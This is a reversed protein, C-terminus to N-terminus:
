GDARTSYHHREASDVLLGGRLSHYVLNGYFVVVCLSDREHCPAVVWEDGFLAGVM